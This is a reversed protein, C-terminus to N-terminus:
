VLFGRKDRAIAMKAARRARSASSFRAQHQEKSLGELHPRDLPRGDIFVFFERNLETIEVKRGLICSTKM